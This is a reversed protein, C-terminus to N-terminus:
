HYRLSEAKLGYRKVIYDLVENRFSKPYTEVYDMTFSISMKEKRKVHVSSEVEVSVREKEVDVTAKVTFYHPLEPFNMTVESMVM